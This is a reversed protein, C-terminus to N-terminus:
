RMDGRYSMVREMSLTGLLFKQFKESIKEPIGGLVKVAASNVFSNSFSETCSVRDVEREFANIKKGNSVM